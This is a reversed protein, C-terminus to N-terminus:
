VNDTQSSCPIKAVAKRYQKSQKGTPDKQSSLRGEKVAKPEKKVAKQLQRAGSPDLSFAPGMVYLERSPFATLSEKAPAAAPNGAPAEPKGECSTAPLTQEDEKLM